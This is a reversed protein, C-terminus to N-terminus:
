FSRSFSGPTIGRFERGLDAAFGELQSWGLAKGTFKRRALPVAPDQQTKSPKAQETHSVLHRASKRSDQM